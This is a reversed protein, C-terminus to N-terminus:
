REVEEGNTDQQLAQMSLYLDAQYHLQQALISVAFYIFNGKLPTETL